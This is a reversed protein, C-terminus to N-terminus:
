GRDHVVRRIKQADLFRARMLSGAPQIPELDSATCRTQPEDATTPPEDPRAARCSM